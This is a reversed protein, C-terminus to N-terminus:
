VNGNLEKAKALFTKANELKNELIGIQYTKRHIYSNLAEKKTPWAFRKKTITKNYISQELIFKKGLDYKNTKTNWINKDPFLIWVGCPTKKIVEYEELYLNNSYSYEDYVLPDNYRYYNLENMMKRGM